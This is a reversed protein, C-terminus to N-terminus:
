HHFERGTIETPTVRVIIDTTVPAWSWFALNGLAEIEAADDIVQAKGKVVVSWPHPGLDDTEFAVLDHERLVQIKTGASTRIFLLKDDTVLFNVPFIDPGDVALRGVAKSRLKGWAEIEPVHRVSSAHHEFEM